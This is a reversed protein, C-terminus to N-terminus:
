KVIIIESSSSYNNPQASKPPCSGHVEYKQASSELRYTLIYLQGNKAGCWNGAYDSTTAYYDYNFGNAIAPPTDTSARPDKPLKPIYDSLKTELNAWSGDSTSSWSGNIKCTTVSSICQGHPYKGNDVYYMELAKQITAVDQKRQSDRARKQIGNYAVVTIAALIGIAVIVILLEVITFASRSKAM